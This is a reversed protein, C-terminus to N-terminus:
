ENHNRWVGDGIDQVTIHEGYKTLQFTRKTCLIDLVDATDRM